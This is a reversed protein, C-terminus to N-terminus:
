SFYFNGDRDFDMDDPILKNGNYIAPLVKERTGDPDIVVIDGSLFGCLFLRGDKHIKVSAFGSHEPDDYIIKVVKDALSVRYIKGGGNFPDTYHTYCFYLNGTRDFAPGELIAKPNDTVKLWLTATISPVNDLNITERPPVCGNLLLIALVLVILLSLGSFRKRASITRNEM